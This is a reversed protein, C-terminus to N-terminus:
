KSKPARSDFGLLNEEESSRTEKVGDGVINYIAKSFIRYRNKLKKVKDFLKYEDEKEKIVFDFVKDNGTQFIGRSREPHRERKTDGWVRYQPSFVKKPPTYCGVRCM